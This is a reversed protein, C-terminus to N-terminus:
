PRIFHGALVGKGQTAEMMKEESRVGSRNHTGVPRSIRPRRKSESMYWWIRMGIVDDGEESLLCNDPGSKESKCVRQVCM